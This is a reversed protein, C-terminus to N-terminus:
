KRLTKYKKELQYYEKILDEITEDDEDQVEDPTEITDIDDIIEEDSVNSEEESLEEINYKELIFKIFNTHLHTRKKV